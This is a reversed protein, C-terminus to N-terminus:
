LAVTYEADQIRWLVLLSLPHAQRLPSRKYAAYDREKYRVFPFVRSAGRTTRETKFRQHCVYGEM